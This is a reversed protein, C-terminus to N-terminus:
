IQLWACSLRGVCLVAVTSLQHGQRYMLWVMACTCVGWRKAGSSGGTQTAAARSSSTSSHRDSCRSRAAAPVSGQRSRTHCSGGSCGVAQQDALLTHLLSTLLCFQTLTSRPHAVKDQPWPYCSGCACGVAQQDTPLAFLSPSPPLLRLPSPRSRQLYAAKDQGHTVAVVRAGLLKSIQLLPTFANVASFAPPHQYCRSVGVKSFGKTGCTTEGVM